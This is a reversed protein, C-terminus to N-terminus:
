RQAGDVALQASAPQGLRLADQPDDVRIRVEYVLSTRLEETQVSKPTFEAAPSIFGVTGALARPHSDTWVRAAMGPRVRGLDPEGVYVRVWKPQQLALAFVPRQPTAMDGVELLRSRIVGDSPARLEGLALEHELLAVQAQAVKLQAAAVAIDEARTGREALRLADRQESTRARAVKVATGAREMDLASVGRGATEAAVERLRSLESGTREVEAAAADVRSRAQAIEEARSGAQLKALALRQAEAQARAQDLRLRLTRTDLVALVTGAKVRQGEEARLEAVRGSGDFALAVQRLDVNGHLILRGDERSARQTSWVIGGAVLALVLAGIGIAHKKM